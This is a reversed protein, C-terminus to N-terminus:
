GTVLRVQVRAVVGALGTRLDAAGCGEAVVNGTRGGARCREQPRRGLQRRRASHGAASVAATAAM